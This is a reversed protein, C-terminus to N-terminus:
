KQIINNLDIEKLRNVAYFTDMNPTIRIQM